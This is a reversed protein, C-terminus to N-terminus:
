FRDNRGYPADRWAAKDAEAPMVPQDTLLPPAPFDLNLGFFGKNPPIQLDSDDTWGNLNLM